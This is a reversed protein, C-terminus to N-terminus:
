ENLLAKLMDKGRNIRVGVNSLSLDLTAAIDAHSMGELALSLVQRYPLPLRRLMAGLRRSQETALLDQEPSMTAGVIHQVAVRARKEQVARAVHTVCRNHAIRFVFPALRTEDQLRPLALHVALLIEQVLDERLAPDAEYAAAIRAVAAGYAAIIDELRAMQVLLREQDL